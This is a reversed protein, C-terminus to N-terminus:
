KHHYPEGKLITFGRYLQEVFFLRVMQHSFTMRSLALKENARQYVKESFGYPGGVVFVLNKLGQNMRKQLVNSFGISDNEKGNEDLLTVWDANEIKSLIVEGEKEKQEKESLNKSNKIDAIEIIAFSCYHKLRKIYLDIGQKVYDADTKGIVLLKVKMALCFYAYKQRVFGFWGFIFFFM